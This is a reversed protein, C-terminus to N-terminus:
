ELFAASEPMQFCGQPISIDVRKHIKVKLIRNSGDLFLYKYPYCATLIVVLPFQVSVKM